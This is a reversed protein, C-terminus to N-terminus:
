RSPTRVSSVGWSEGFAVGGAAEVQDGPEAFFQGSLARIGAGVSRRGRRSTGTYTGDDEVFQVDM